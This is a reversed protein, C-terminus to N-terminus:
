RQPTPSGAAQWQLEAPEATTRALIFLLDSLRNLYRLIQPNTDHLHWARREARRCVARAFHIESAPSSQGPLVFSRLSPLGANFHDCDHEVRAAYEASIRVTSPNGTGETGAEPSSDSTSGAAPPVALDAGLDFLENQIRWLVASVPGEPCRSLAMGIAACLEDVAGIVEIRPDTKAVRDPSGLATSGDDGTRTYIRTLAISMAIGELLDLATQSDSPQAASSSPAAILRDIRDLARSLVARQQELIGRHDGLVQALAHSDDGDAIRGIRGVPVGLERLALIRLLRARQQPGYRRHGGESRSAPALLGVQEYYRVTRVTTGAQRALAGVSLHEHGQM